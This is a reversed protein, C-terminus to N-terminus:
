YNNFSIEFKYFKWHKYAEQYELIENRDSRRTKRVQFVTPEGDKMQLATSIDHPTDMCIENTEVFPEESMHIDFDLKFRQSLSQFHSLKINPTQIFQEPVYSIQYLYPVTKAKRVRVIRYYYGTRPLNLKELYEPQNDRTMDIVSVTDDAMPFAEMDSFAVMKGKRSRSVFTGKGQYRVLYGDKVLDNLARIVTISSVDYIKSLQAETYFKDGNEFQGSTIQKKLDNKIVQYKPIRM